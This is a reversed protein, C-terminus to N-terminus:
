EIMNTNVQSNNDEAQTQTSCDSRPKEQINKSSSQSMEKEIERWPYHSNSNKMKNSM